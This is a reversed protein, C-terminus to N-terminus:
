LNRSLFQMHRRRRTRSFLIQHIICITFFYTITSFEKSVHIFLVNVDVIYLISTYIANYLFWRFIGRYVQLLCLKQKNKNYKLLNRQVLGMIHRNRWWLKPIYMYTHASYFTLQIFHTSIVTYVVSFPKTWFTFCWINNEDMIFSACRSHTCWSLSLFSHHTSIWM